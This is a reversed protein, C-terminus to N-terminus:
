GPASASFVSAFLIKLDLLSDSYVLNRESHPLRRDMYYFVCERWTFYTGSLKLQLTVDGGRILVTGSAPLGCAM